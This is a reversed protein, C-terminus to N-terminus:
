RRHYQRYWSVFKQVGDEISTAPRFGVDRMTSTAPDLKGGLLSKAKAPVKAIVREVAEIVDDINLSIAACGARILCDSRNVRASQRPSFTCRMDPRGWPGYVTFFRLGTAPLGYLDGCPGLRLPKKTGAGSLEACALDAPNAIAHLM